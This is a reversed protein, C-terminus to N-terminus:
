DVKVRFLVEGAAGADLHGSFMWHLQGTGGVPQPPGATCDVAPAPHPNAPTNKSCSGLAT